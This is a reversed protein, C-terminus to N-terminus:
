PRLREIVSWDSTRVDLNTTLAIIALPPVVRIPSLRYRARLYLRDHPTDGLPLALDRVTFFREVLPEPRQATLRATEGRDVTEDLVYLDAIREYRLVRTLTTQFALRDGLVGRLGGLREYVLVELAVQSRFGGALADLVEQRQVQAEPGERPAADLLLGRPSSRTALVLPPVAQAAAYGHTFLIAALIAASSRPSRAWPAARGAM